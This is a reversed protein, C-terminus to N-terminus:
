QSPRAADGEMVQVRGWPGAVNDVTHFHAGLYTDLAAMPIRAPDSAPWFALIIEPPINEYIVWRPPSTKLEALARQEDEATMMGPQLYSYRTPNKAQLFYYVSPLYPFSFLSDGPRIWQELHALFEGEDAPTRVEGVRTEQPWYNATALVKNGLSVCTAFLVTLCFWRRQQVNTLRYFLVALLFWSPALTFLLTESTWRPWASLVLAAVVGLMPAIEALQGDQKRGRLYLLWGALAAPPFIAPILSIAFGAAALWGNEPAAGPIRVGLGGYFVRNPQTYNARTWLMAQIFPQLAHNRALYIAATVGAVAGGSLFATLARKGGRCSWVLLPIAAVAMSPTACAAAAALFGAAAWLAPRGGREVRAAIVVAAVALAASDWRHNVSLQRIRAEYALLVLSAGIAYSRSTYRAALWYVAWALFAADLLPPVRMAALSMGSWWALAGEIWFSLPGTVAFFDRYPQQHQAVLRGGQLYIGEDGGLHLVDGALYYLVLFSLAFLGLGIAWTQERLTRIM